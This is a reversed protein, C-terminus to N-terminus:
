RVAAAPPLPVVGLSLLVSLLDFYARLETVKGDRVTIIEVARLTGSRGSPPITEVPGGLPGNHTGSFVLEVVLVDGCAYSAAITVTLDPFAEPWGRLAAVIQDHGHVRVGTAVEDYVADPALGDKYREWDQASFAQNQREVIEVM